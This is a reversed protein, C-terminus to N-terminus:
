LSIGAGFLTCSARYLKSHCCSLLGVQSLPGDDSPQEDEAPVQSPESFTETQTEHRIM